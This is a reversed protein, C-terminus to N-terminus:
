IGNTKEYNKKGNHEFIKKQLREPAFIKTEKKKRREGGWKLIEFFFFFFFLFLFLFVIVDICNNYELFTCPFKM